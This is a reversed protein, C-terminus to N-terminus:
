PRDEPRLRLAFVTIDDSAPTEGVHESVARLVADTLDASSDGARSALVSLLGAESFPRNGSDFAETVGDTYLFLADGPRV